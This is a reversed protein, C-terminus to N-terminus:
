NSRLPAILSFALDDIHERAFGVNDDAALASVIGSVGDNMSADFVNQVEDGRSNEPASFNAHDAVANHDIRDGKDGLDVTQSVHADCDALIQENAVASM